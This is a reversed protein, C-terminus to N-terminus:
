SFTISMYLTRYHGAYGGPYLPLNLENVTLTFHAIYLIYYNSKWHIDNYKIYCLTFLSNILIQGVLLTVSVTCLEMQHIAAILWISKFLQTSSHGDRAAKERKEM